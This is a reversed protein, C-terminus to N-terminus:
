PLLWVGGPRTEERLAEVGLVRGALAERVGETISTQVGLFRARMTGHFAYELEHQGIYALAIRGRWVLMLNRALEGEVRVDHDACADHGLLYIGLADRGGTFRRGTMSDLDIPADIRLGEHGWATSSMTCAHFNAWVGVSTWDSDGEVDGPDRESLYDATKLHLHLRLEGDRLLEVHWACSLVPHGEPWPNDEFFIRM